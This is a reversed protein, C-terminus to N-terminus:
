LDDGARANQSAYPRVIQISRLLIQKNTQKTYSIVSFYSYMFLITHVVVGPSTM